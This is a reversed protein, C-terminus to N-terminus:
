KAILGDDVIKNPDYLPRIIETNKNSNTITINKGNSRHRITYYIGVSELNSKVENLRRSLVNPEKAWLKSHVNISETEAVINLQGLLRAVTGTWINSSIMMKIIAAAVPNSEVAEENARSQNNIYADLFVEGGIGAAEAIAYGWRTFDAMRGMRDLKVDDYITMAKSLTTFIAGLIKPKDADFEEWLVSEEKREQPSIRELEFLISRDLLDARTAVINIGNISVPEKFYLITEEDDTYLKRKSFGGGTSAMCLMDSKEPTINDINDFCPMYNNSLILALDEKSTPMSVVDRMAPDVISRDKKMSTTKSAGKEGHIVDIPHAMDPIFKTVINVMHLIEDDKSKYRYHKNLISLDEYKEPIVQAKMNKNRVFLIPAESVIKWGDRGIIVNSWNSDALDYYYSGEYKTCRRSLAIVRGGYIAKMEFIGLAQNMADCVPAKKTKDYFKKTLWMRFRKSNVKYVEKHGNIDVAAYKEEIDDCFLEVTSGVNILIDSQTQKSEGEDKNSYKCKKEWGPEAKGRLTHWNENSCSNHHCGAVIAGNGYQIIYASKNIHEERWPCQELVYLIGTGIPKESKVKIDHEEMWVKLDLQKEKKNVNIKKEEIPLMSAISQLQEKKIIQVEDPCSIIKAMRHPREDTDDGKCAVTGYVKCIRSANFTSKDVEVDDDTFIVDLASLVNKVLETSAKDNPIDIFYLLHAGNGSDALVPDSWGVETLFKKVKEAKEIAKKHEKDSSSIGSAREADLDIMLITRREIDADSTTNKAYQILRNKSRALLQQKVPNVTFYINYKEIYQEIDRTLKKYDNYYGSVTGRNTNLIRVEVVTNEAKLEGMSHMVEDLCENIDYKNLM